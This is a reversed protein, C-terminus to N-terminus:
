KRHLILKDVVLGILYYQILTLLLPVPVTLANVLFTWATSDPAIIRRSILIQLLRQAFWQAPFMSDLFRQCWISHGLSEFCSAFLIVAVM